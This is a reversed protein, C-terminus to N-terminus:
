PTPSDPEDADHWLTRMEASTALLADLTGEGAVRGDQLLVIHDARRLVTRRHSIALCTANGSAFLREWLQQETKVDLASSVDDIVLLEVGRVLMRAAAARQLQGGSLKVGGSGVLTELGAELGRVDDELVAGHVAAALAPRDDPM